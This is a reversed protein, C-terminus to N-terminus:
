KQKDKNDKEKEDKFVFYVAGLSFKIKTNNSDDVKIIVEGGDKDISYITGIMGCSMMVKDNKKLSNILKQAQKTQSQKPLVFLFYMAVLVMFMMLMFQFVQGGTSNAAADQAFLVSWFSLPLNM